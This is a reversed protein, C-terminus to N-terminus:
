EGFLEKCKALNVGYVEEDTPVYEEVEVAM